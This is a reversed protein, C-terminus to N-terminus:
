WHRRTVDVVAFCGSFSRVGSYALSYLASLFFSLTLSLSSLSCSFSLSLSVVTVPNILKTGGKPFCCQMCLEAHERRAKSLQTKASSQRCLPDPCMVVRQKTVSRKHEYNMRSCEYRDGAILSVCEGTMLRYRHITPNLSSQRVSSCRMLYKSYSEVQWVRYPKCIWTRYLFTILGEQPLVLM